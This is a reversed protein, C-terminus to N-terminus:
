RTVKRGVALIMIPVCFFTLVFVKLLEGRLEKIGDQKTYPFLAAEGTGHAFYLPIIQGAEVRDAYKKDCLLVKTRSRGGTEGAPRCKVYWSIAQSDNKFDKEVVVYDSQTYREWQLIKQRIKSWSSIGWIVMAVCGIPAFLRLSMLYEQLFEM